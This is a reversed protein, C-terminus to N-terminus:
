GILADNPLRKMKKYFFLIITKNKKCDATFTKEAASGKKPGGKREFGKQLYRLM